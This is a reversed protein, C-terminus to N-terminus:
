IRLHRVQTWAFSTTTTTSDVSEGFNIRQDICDVNVSPHSRFRSSIQACIEQIDAARKQDEDLEIVVERTIAIIEDAAMTALFLTMMATMLDAYSIWFPKEAESKATPRNLARTFM